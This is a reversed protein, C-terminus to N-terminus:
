GSLYGLSNPITNKDGQLNSTDGEIKVPETKAFVEAKKPEPKKANRADRAVMIAVGGAMAGMLAVAAIMQSLTMGGLIGGAGGAGAGAGGTAGSWASRGGGGSRLFGTLVGKKKKRDSGVRAIKFTPVDATASDKKTEMSM